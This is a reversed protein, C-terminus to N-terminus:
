QNRQSIGAHGKRRNQILEDTVAANAWIGRLVAKGGKTIGRLGPGVKKESSAAFHCIECRDKFIVEGRSSWQKQTKPTCKPLALNPKYGLRRALCSASSRWTPSSQM